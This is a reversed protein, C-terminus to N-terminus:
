NFDSTYKIKCTPCELSNDGKRLRIGDIKNVVFDQIFAYNAKHNNIDIQKDEYMERIINDYEQAGWCNPCYGEPSKGKTEAAPKKFFAILTEIM